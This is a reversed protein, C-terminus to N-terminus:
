SKTGAKTCPATGIGGERARTGAPCQALLGDAHVTHEEGDIEYTLTVGDVVVPARRPAPLLVALIAPRAHATEADCSPVLGAADIASQFRRPVPQAAVGAPTQAEDFAVAFAVEDAVEDTADARAETIEVRADDGSVCLISTFYLPRRSPDAVFSTLDLRLTETDSGSCAALPLLTLLTVLLGLRM